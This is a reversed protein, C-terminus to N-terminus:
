DPFIILKRYKDAVFENMNELTMSKERAVLLSFSVIQAHIESM